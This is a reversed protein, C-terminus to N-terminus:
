LLPPSIRRAEVHAAFDLRVFGGEKEGGGGSESLLMKALEDTAPTKRLADARPRGAVRGSYSTAQEAFQGGARGDGRGRKGVVGNPTDM